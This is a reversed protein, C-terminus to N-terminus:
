RPGGAAPKGLLGGEDKHQEPRVSGTAREVKVERSDLQMEIRNGRLVDGRDFLKPDGTLVLTRKAADYDAQQGTARRDGDVMVVGGRIQLTTLQGAGDYRADMRPGKVTLDGRRIVVKERFRALRRQQDLRLTGAEVRVPVAAKPDNATPSGPLSRQLLIRPRLVEIEDTDLHLLVRDGVMLEAGDRLVPGTVGQLGAPISSPPGVLTLTGNPADYTAHNGDATRPQAGPKEVHVAGEIVFKSLTQRSGEPQPESKKAAKQGKKGPKAAPKAPPAESFEAVARDGTVKMDKRDFWVAGELHTTNAKPELTMTAAGFDIPSPPLPRSAAPAALLALALAIM